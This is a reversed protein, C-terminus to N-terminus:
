GLNQVLGTAALISALGEANHVGMIKLALRATPHLMTVGGVTGVALPALFEGKLTTGDFTWDTVPQYKGSRAAYSHVGAEVARWDNGTAILIPDIGNMVGKNHTSARYPDSKAFQAAEQIGLGTEPDVGEIEVRARTLKGDVLNSLICLGVREGTILEIEPKLGECIQNILNAGMADKPDCLIHIVLMTGSGDERPIARFELDRVGGGRAVLGPVIANALAILEEKSSNLRQIALELNGVRPIQVQGIILNGEAGTTIRGNMKRIWKATASVAAIISTEEVAMPILVDRGNIKFYTAVGLPLPFVGIVNEIFHEATEVPLANVGKLIQLEQPDLDCWNALRAQREEFPIRHFEQLLIEFREKSM